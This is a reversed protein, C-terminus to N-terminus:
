TGGSAVADPVTVSRRASSVSSSRIALSVGLWFRGPTAIIVMGLLYIAAGESLVPRNM